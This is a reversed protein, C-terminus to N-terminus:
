EDIRKQKHRELYWCPEFGSHPFLSHVCTDTEPPVNFDFETTKNKLGIAYYPQVTVTGYPNRSRPLPFRVSLFDGAYIVAMALLLFLIGRKIQRM